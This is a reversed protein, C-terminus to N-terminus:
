ATRRWGIGSTSFGRPPKSWPPRTASSAAQFRVVSGHHASAEAVERWRQDAPRRRVGRGHDPVIAAGESLQGRQRAVRAQRRGSRQRRVHPRLRAEIRLGARPLSGGPDGRCQKGALAEHVEAAVFTKGAPGTRGAASVCEFSSEFDSADHNLRFAFTSRRSRLIPWVGRPAPSRRTVNASAPLVQATQYSTEVAPSAIDSQKSLNSYRCKLHVKVPTIIKKFVTRILTIASAWAVSTVPVHYWITLSRETFGGM